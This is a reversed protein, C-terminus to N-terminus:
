QFLQPFVFEHLEKRSRPAEERKKLDEPLNDADGPFGVAIVVVARTETDLQLQQHLGAADFGGMIHACLGLSTASLNLALNAMGLDHLAAPNYAGNRAFKEKVVSVILLPAKEAWMKNGPLLSNAIKQHLADGDRGFVYMWPQENMASPSWRAAEFLASVMNDPVADASFARTSRRNAIIESFTKFSETLPEEKIM